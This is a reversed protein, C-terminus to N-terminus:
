ATALVRDYGDFQQGYYFDQPSVYAGPNYKRSLRHEFLPQGDFWNQEIGFPEWRCPPAMSFRTGHRMFAIPWTEKDGHMYKFWFDAYDNMWRVLELARWCRVKDVMLQGSETETYHIPAKLGIFGFAKYDKLNKAIDPFFVAGHQQFEPSEFFPMPDRVPASDSDLLLVNRFPCNAVMYSKLPWGQLIRVPHKNAVLQADVFEVDLHDFRHPMDPALEKHGLHWIQIPWDWGSERIRSVTMFAERLYRRGGAAM